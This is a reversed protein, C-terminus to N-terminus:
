GYLAKERLETELRAFFAERMMVLVPQFDFYRKRTRVEYAIRFEEDESYLLVGRTVVLGQVRLPAENICRVDSNQISCHREFEVEIELELTFREYADLGCDPALVLAIDVDSLPTTCGAAVSGYVYALLVPYPRLIDPLCRELQDILIATGRKAEAKTIDM